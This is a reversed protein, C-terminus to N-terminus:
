LLAHLTRGPDGDWAAGPKARFNGDFSVMAGAARAARAADLAADATRQGPAPTVGSVRGALLALWSYGAPGTM